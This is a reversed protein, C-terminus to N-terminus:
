SSPKEAAPGHSRQQHKEWKAAMKKARQSFHMAIKEQQASDLSDWVALWKQNLERRNDVMKSHAEAAKQLAAHPDIQGAQLQSAQAARNARMSEGRTKHRALRAAQAENLRQRQSDTLSLSEVAHKSLPGYGPVWMAAQRHQHHQSHHRHGHHHRSHHGQLAPHGAGTGQSSGAVVAPADGGKTAATDALATGQFLLAAAILSLKTLSYFPAYRM